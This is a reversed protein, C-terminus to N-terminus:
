PGIEVPSVWLWNAALLALDAADVLGNRDFDVQADYEAEPESLLWHRSLIAYDGLDITDDVNPNGELLTGLDVSTAPLSVVVNRKLNTLTSSGVVTIDYTGPAVGYAMCVASEGDPSRATTLEFEYAPASAADAGPAFFRVTLPIAWGSEARGEGQLGVSVSVLVAPPGISVVAQPIHSVPIRTASHIGAREAATLDPKFHCGMGIATAQMLMNGAVFGTELQAYHQGAYSSDLCLIVYCPAVPLAGVASRLSVRADAPGEDDGASPPRPRASATSRIDEIRHDRTATNTSPNRNHYRYVGSENVLYISGTLYYNAYASPVTLGARGNSTTHATCGYGAWLIQSVQQLTLATQAFQSGYNLNALVEELSNDGATSPAPLWGPQEEPVTCRATLEDTLGKVAQVGFILRTTPYAAGKPCSAMPSEDSRALSVSALMAPMFSVGTDFDRETEYIIAFAGESVVENSHWSISHATPDYLYTGTPTAVFINRYTGTVPVRAAAWLINSMQQASATARNLTHQSYRSNLCIELSNETVLPPPLSGAGVGLAPYAVQCAALALIASGVWRM